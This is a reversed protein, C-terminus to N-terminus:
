PERSPTPPTGMPRVLNGEQPGGWAQPARLEFRLAGGHRPTATATAGM